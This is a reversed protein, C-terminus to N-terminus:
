GPTYRAALERAVSYPSRNWVDLVVPAREYRERRSTFLERLDANEEPGSGKERLESWLSAAARSSQKRARSRAEEFSLYLYVLDSETLVAQLSEDDALAGEGLAIIPSPRSRLAKALEEKEIRRFSLLGEREILAPASGGLRHEIRDDLLCLPVGSVSSVASAVSRTLQNVFSVLVLPRSLVAEPAYDYYGKSEESM